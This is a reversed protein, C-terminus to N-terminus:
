RSAPIVPLIIRSPHLPDHLITQLAPVCDDKTATAIEGGHNPNRDFRPFNSSSIEVRIRHGAAFVTSTACLDIAYEEIQGPTLLEAASASTRYRARIIGDTLNRVCGCPCVDVLKATFDTDRASSSAHLVVTVPGSVEVAEALPETTYCLVDAREEIDRQDRVGGDTWFFNCCLGGGRTPVPDLPNYLFSDRRDEGERPPEVSLRGDGHATNARGGSRLFFDTYRTRALPWEQEDRWVNPGMVFIRVPADGATARGDDRLHRDFWRLHIGDFDIVGHYSEHGPFYDGVGSQTIVTIHTWPGILLRQGARAAETRSHDRMGLYNQITGGLFVDYWGGIHLAAVDLNDYNGDVKYRDWFPGHAPHSLWEDYYPALAALLGDGALPMKAFEGDMRDIRRVLEAKMARLEPDAKLRREMTDTALWTLTWSLLFSLEFAGGQYVWGEHYDAATVYPVIAQLGPAGALAAQWQTLGVYSAGFMGIRGNSWPQACIWACTDHGDPQEHAFAHFEGESAWRGRTDQLVVAYCEGAARLAFAAPCEKAYPTRQLIVP